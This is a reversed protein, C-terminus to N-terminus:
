AWGFRGFRGVKAVIAVVPGSTAVVVDWSQVITPPLFAVFSWCGFGFGFV